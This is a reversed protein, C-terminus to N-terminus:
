IILKTKLSHTFPPKLGAQEMEDIMWYWNGVTEVAIKSGQPLACLFNRYAEKEHKVHVPAKVEGAETITVFVSYKKHADCGIYEQM